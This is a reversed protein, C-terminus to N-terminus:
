GRRDDNDQNSDDKQKGDTTETPQEKQEPEPVYRTVYAKMASSQHAM